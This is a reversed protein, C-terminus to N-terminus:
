LGRILDSIEAVIESLRKNSRSRVSYRRDSRIHSNYLDIIQLKTWRKGVFGPSLVRQERSYWFEEGTSDVLTVVDQDSSPDFLVLISALM